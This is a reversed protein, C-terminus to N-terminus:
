RGLANDIANIMALLKDELEVNWECGEAAGNKPRYMSWLIDYAKDVQKEFDEQETM